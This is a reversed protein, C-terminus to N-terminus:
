KVVLKLAKQGSPEYIMIQYIGSSLGEIVLSGNEDASKARILQGTLKYIKVSAGASLNQLTATGPSPNPYLVVTPQDMIPDDAVIRFQTGDVRLASSSAGYVDGFDIYGLCFMTEKYSGGCSSNQWTATNVAQDEAQFRTTNVDMFDVQMDTGNDAFYLKVNSGLDSLSHTYNAYTNGSINWTHVTTNDVRLQLYDSTGSLMKARVTVTTESSGNGEEFNITIEPADASNGEYTKASRKGTTGEIFIALDNGSQWGSMDVIEQIIAKLDPTQQNSSRENATNWAPVNWTQSASTRNKNSLNNQTTSFPGADNSDQGKVVLNATTSEGNKDATFQVKASTITAGQPITINTFRIGHYPKSGFDLDGSVLDMSGDSKEEADDAGANVKRKLQGATTNPTATGVYTTVTKSPVSVTVSSGGSISSLQVLNQTASTRHPTITNCTFGNFNLTVSQSSSGKNIVVIAFENTSPDKFSAVHLDTAPTKQNNIQVWGPRVFKSFNGLTYLRKAVSFGSQGSQIKAANILGQQKGDENMNVAWWFHVSNVQANSLLRWWNYAWQVGNEISLDENSVDYSWETMWVPKGYNSQSHDINSSPYAHGGLIDVYGKATADNEIPSYWYEVDDSHTGNDWRTAEPAILRTNLTRGLNNKIFDRLNNRDWDCSEWSKPGPENQASIGYYNIGHNNKMRQYYAEMANAWDQYHATKLFGGNVESNNTKWHSPPTWPVAWVLDCDRALAQQATWVSGLFDTENWNYTGDNNVFDPDIRQRLISFGAGGNRSFLLDMIAEKDPHVQLHKAIWGDSVGFGDITQREDNWNIASSQASVTQTLTYCFLFTLFLIFKKM